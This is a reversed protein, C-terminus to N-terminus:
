QGKIRQITVARIKSQITRNVQFKWLHNKLKKAAGTLFQFHWNVFTSVMTVDHHCCTDNKYWILFGIIKISISTSVVQFKDPTDIVLCSVHRHLWITFIPVNENIIWLNIVFQWFASIPALFHRISGLIPSSIWRSWLFEIHLKSKWCQCTNM